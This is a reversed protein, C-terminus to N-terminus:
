SPALEKLESTSKTQALIITPKKIMTINPQILKELPNVKFQEYPNGFFKTLSDNRM